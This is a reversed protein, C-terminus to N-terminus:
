GQAQLNELAEQVNPISRGPQRDTYELIPRVLNKYTKTAGSIFKYGFVHLKVPIM